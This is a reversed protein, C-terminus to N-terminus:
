VDCFYLKLRIIPFETRQTSRFTGARPTPYDKQNEVGIAFEAGFHQLTVAPSALVGTTGITELNVVNARSATQAVIYVFIQDRETSIAVTVDVSFRKLGLLRHLLNRSGIRSTKEPSLPNPYPM